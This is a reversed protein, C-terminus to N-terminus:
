YRPEIQYKQVHVYRVEQHDWPALTELLALIVMMEMEELHERLEAKDRFFYTTLFAPLIIYHQM